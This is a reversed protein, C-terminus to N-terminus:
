AGSPHALEVAGGGFIGFVRVDGTGSKESGAPVQANIVFGSRESRLGFLKAVDARDTGPTTEAAFRGDVFVVVREAAGQSKTAAWGGMRLGGGSLDLSELYGGGRGGVV